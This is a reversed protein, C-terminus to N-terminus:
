NFAALEAELEAIRGSIFEQASAPATAQRDRLEALQSEVSARREPTQEGSKTFTAAVENRSTAGKSGDRPNQVGDRWRRFNELTPKGDYPAAILFDQWQQQARQASPPLKRSTGAYLVEPECACHEHWAAMATAESKYVFGRSALMECFACPEGSTVRAVALVRPDSRVIEAIVDRGGDLVSKGVVGAVRTFATDLAQQPPTGRELAKAAAVPGNIRLALAIKERAVELVPAVAGWRAVLDGAARLAEGIEAIRFAQMYRAALAESQARRDVILRLVADVFTDANEFVDDPSVLARWLALAEAIARQSLAVQARRHFATLEEGEPTSAM